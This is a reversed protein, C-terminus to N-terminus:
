MVQVVTLGVTCSHTHIYIYYIHIYIYIGASSGCDHNQLFDVESQGPLQHESVRFVNVFNSSEMDLKNNSRTTLLTSATKCDWSEPSWDLWGSVENVTSARVQFTYGMNPQLGTIEAENTASTQSGYMEQGKVGFHVEYIRAGAVAGWALYVSTGTTNSCSNATCTSLLVFFCISARLRCCM